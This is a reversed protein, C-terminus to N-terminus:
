LHFNNKVLEKGVSAVGEGLGIKLSPKFKVVKFIEGLLFLDELDSDKKLNEKKFAEIFNFNEFYFLFSFAEYITTKTARSKAIYSFYAKLFTILYKNKKLDEQFKKEKAQKVIEEFGKITNKLNLGSRENESCVYDINENVYKIFEEIIKKWEIYYRTKNLLKEKESKLFGREELQKLQKATPSSDKKGRAEAISLAYDKGSAILFIIQSFPLSNSVSVKERGRKKQMKM